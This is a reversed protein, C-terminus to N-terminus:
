SNKWIRVVAAKKTYSPLNPLQDWSRDINKEQKLRILRHKVSWHDRLKWPREYYESKSRSRSKGRKTSRLVFCFFDNGETRTMWISMVLNTKGRMRIMNTHIIRWYVLLGIKERKKDLLVRQFHWTGTSSKRSVPFVVGLVGWYGRNPTM